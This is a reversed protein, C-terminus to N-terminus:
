LPKGKSVNAQMQKCKSQKQLQNVKNVNAQMQKLKCKSEM